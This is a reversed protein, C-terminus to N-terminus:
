LPLEDLGEQVVDNGIAADGVGGRDVGDSGDYEEREKEIVRDQIIHTHM